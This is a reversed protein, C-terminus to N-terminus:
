SLKQTSQTKEEKLKKHHQSLDQYFKEEDLPKLWEHEFKKRDFLADMLAVIFVVAGIIVAYKLLTLFVYSPLLFILLCIILGITVLSVALHNIIFTTNALPYDKTKKLFASENLDPTDSKKIEGYMSKKAVYAPRGRYGHVTYIYNGSSAKNKVYIFDILSNAGLEKAKNKAIEKAAEPSDDSEVEILWDAINLIDWGKAYSEKSYLFHPPTAYNNIENPNLLSCKIAKYGKPTATQEFAVLCGECLLARESLSFESSHFFYNKDDDGQIFGYNKEPLYTKITGNIM